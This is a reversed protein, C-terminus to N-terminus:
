ENWLRGHAPPFFAVTNNSNDFPTDYAGIKAASPHRGWKTAFYAILPEAPSKVGGLTAAHGITTGQADIPLILWTADTFAKNIRLDYDIDEFYSPYFNPDFYGVKDLVDRRVATIHWGFVGDAYGPSEGRVYNQEVVNKTAFHIVHAYHHDEIQQIMDQAGQEGFRIAASVLILWDADRERMLDVGMNWSGAVGHNEETNDICVLNEQPLKITAICEDFYPKYAYPLVLIYKM